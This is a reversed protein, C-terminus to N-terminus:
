DLRMSLKKGLRDFEDLWVRASEDGQQALSEFDPIMLERMRYYANQMTWLDVDFPLQRVLSAVVELRRLIELSDPQTVFRDVLREISKKLTYSLSPGDLNVTENRAKKLLSEILGIPLDEREFARKLQLNLDFEAAVNLARPLPIGLDTHLRMLPVYRDHLQRFAAEAEAFTADCIV